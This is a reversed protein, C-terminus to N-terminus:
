VEKMEALSNLALDAAVVMEGAAPQVIECAVPQLLRGAIEISEADKYCGHNTLYALLSLNNHDAIDEYRRKLDIARSPM